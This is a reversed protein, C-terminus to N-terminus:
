QDEETRRNQHPIRCRYPTQLWAELLAIERQRRHSAADEAVTAETRAAQRATYQFRRITRPRHWADYAAPALCALGVTAAICAIATDGPSM